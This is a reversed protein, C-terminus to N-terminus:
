DKRQTYAKREERSARRASIIRITEKELKRKGDAVRRITYIVLLIRGQLSYGIRKWRTETTSHKLDKWELGNPDIFITAAEDFTVGHKTSNLQAKAVDWIFSELKHIYM